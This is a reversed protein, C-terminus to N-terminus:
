KKKHGKSAAEAKRESPHWSESQAKLLAYFEYGEKAPVLKTLFGEIDEPESEPHILGEAKLYGIMRANVPISHGQLSTLVCYEVAFPSMGDLAEILQKAPRKGLKKIGTLTLGHFKNFVAMLVRTLRGAAERVEVSDEGFLDVIEDARAVRLDNLDVFHKTMRKYAAQAQSETVPESLFGYVLAELPDEYSVPQVKTGSRKLTRYFKKIKDAYLKSDKM